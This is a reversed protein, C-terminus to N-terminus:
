LQILARAMTVVSARGAKLYNEVIEIGQSKLELCRQREIDSTRSYHRNLVDVLQQRESHTLRSANLALSVNCLEREIEAGQHLSCIGQNQLAHALLLSFSEMARAGAQWSLVDVPLASDDYRKVKVAAASESFESAFVDVPHSSGQGSSQQLAGILLRFGITDMWGDHFAKSDDADPDDLVVGCHGHAICEHTALYPLALYDKFFFDEVQFSIHAVRRRDFAAYPPETTAGELAVGTHGKPKTTHGTTWVVGRSTAFSAHAAYERAALDGCYRFIEKAPELCHGREKLTERDQHATDSRWQCATCNPKGAVTVCPACVGRTCVASLTELVQHGLESLDPRRCNTVLAEGVRAFYLDLPATTSTQQSAPVYHGLLPSPAHSDVSKEFNTLIALADPDLRLVSYPHGLRLIERAAALKLSLPALRPWVVDSM